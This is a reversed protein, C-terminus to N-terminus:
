DVPALELATRIGLNNGAAYGINEGSRVLTVCPELQARLSETTEVDPSNDVVVILSELFDSRQVSEVAARTDDIALYNLVVVAVRPRDTM